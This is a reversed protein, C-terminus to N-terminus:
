FDPILRRFLGFWQTVFVNVLVLNSFSAVTHNCKSTPCKLAKVKVSVLYNIKVEGWGKKKEVASILDDLSLSHNGMSVRFPLCCLNCFGPGLSCYNVFHLGLNVSIGEKPYYMPLTKPVKYWYSM